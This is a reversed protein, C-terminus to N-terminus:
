ESIQVIGNSNISTGLELSLKRMREVIVRGEVNSAKNVQMNKIIVPILRLEKIMKKDVTVLFLFSQDNRLLSDIAYDDLFDGTSYMILKNKYIEIGQFIHPSHGHIIDVGLDILQHAFKQFDGSPRDDWNPGWHLSVILFDVRKKADQILGKILDIATEDIKIYNIGAKNNKAIWAPENDSFGLVGFNIGRKTIYAPYLAQKVTLGAGVHKINVSDLSRLTEILGFRGFDLIHNNAINVVQINAQVLAEVNRPDSQFNFVKSAKIGGLALTTEFNAVNFDTHELIPLLNGWPFAFNKQQMLREGVMRGLMVDGVFGVTVESCSQTFILFFHLSFLSYKKTIKVM